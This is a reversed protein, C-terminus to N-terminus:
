QKPLMMFRSVNDKKPTLVVGKVDLSLMNKRGIDSTFKGTISVRPFRMVYGKKPTIELSKEITVSTNPANFQKNAGSGTITGGFVKVVTELTYEPIQFSIEIAGLKYEVYFPDDKEEVFFETKEADEFNIKCSDELTDGLVDLVTGMDGDAAIDGIKISALGIVVTKQEAM